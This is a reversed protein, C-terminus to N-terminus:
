VQSVAFSWMPRWCWCISDHLWHYGMCAVRYMWGPAHWWWSWTAALSTDVRHTPFDYNALVGPVHGRCEWSKPVFGADILPSCIGFHWTELSRLSLWCLAVKTIALRLALVKFKGGRKQDVSWLQSLSRNTRIWLELPMAWPPAWPGSTTKSALACELSRDWLDGQCGAHSPNWCPDTVVQSFM